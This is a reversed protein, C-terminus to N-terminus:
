HLQWDQWGRCILRYLLRPQKVEAMGTNEDIVADMDYHKRSNYATMLNNMTVEAGQKILAGAAVGADRTFINMM